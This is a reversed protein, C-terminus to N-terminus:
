FPSNQLPKQSPNKLMEKIYANEFTHSNQYSQTISSHIRFIYWYLSSVKTGGFYITSHGYTFVATDNGIDTVKPRGMKNWNGDLGQNIRWYGHNKSWFIKETQRWLNDRTCHVFSPPPRHHRTVSQHIINKHIIACVYEAVAGDAVAGGAAAGGATAGGAASGGAM